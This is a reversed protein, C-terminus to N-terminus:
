IGYDQNMKYEVNEEARIIIIVYLQEINADVKQQRGEDDFPGQQHQAEELLQRGLAAEPQAAVDQGVQVVAADDDVDVEAEVCEEGGGANENRHAGHEAEGARQLEDEHRCQLDRQQREVREDDDVVDAYTMM